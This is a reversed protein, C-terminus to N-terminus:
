SPPTKRRKRIRSLAEPTVGLYSAIVYQPVRRAVGPRTANFREYREEASLKLLNATRRQSGIAVEEIARRGFREFAHDADYAGFLTARPIALVTCPTLADISQLNVGGTTLASVDAVFMGEDFFQGTHEAGDVLYYYRLVGACVFFLAEAPEGERTLHAGKALKRERLAAVFAAHAAPSPSLPAMLRRLEADLAAVSM